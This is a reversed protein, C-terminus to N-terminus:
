ESGVPSTPLPRALLFNWPRLRRDGAGPRDVAHRMREGLNCWSRPGPYGPRARCAGPRPGRRRRGRLANQRRRDPRPPCGTRTSSGAPRRISGTPRWGRTVGAQMDHVHVGVNVRRAAHGIGVVHHEAAGPSPRVQHNVRMAPSLRGPSVVAATAHGPGRRPARRRGRGRRQPLMRIRRQSLM